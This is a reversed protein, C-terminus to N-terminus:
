AARTSQTGSGEEASTKAVTGRIPTVTRGWKQSKRERRYLSTVPSGPSGEGTLLWNRNVKSAWAIKGAVEVLQRPMSGAEWNAWLNQTTGCEREAEAINWGMKWRVLALRAGFAATDPIWDIQESPM